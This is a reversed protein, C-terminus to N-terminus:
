GRIYHLLHGTHNFFDVRQWINNLDRNRLLNGANLNQDEGHSQSIVDANPEILVFSNPYRRLDLLGISICKSKKLDEIRNTLEHTQEVNLQRDTMERANGQLRMPIAYIKACGISKGFSVFEEFYPYNSQQITCNLIFPVEALRLRKILDIVMRYSGNFRLTDNLEETPGDLSIDPVIRLQKMLKIHQDNVESGNTTVSVEFCLKSAHSLLDIIDSRKDIPDKRQFPEGGSINLRAVGAQKIIDMVSM